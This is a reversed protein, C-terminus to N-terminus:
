VAFWGYNSFLESLSLLPMKLAELNQHLMQLGSTNFSSEKSIYPSM